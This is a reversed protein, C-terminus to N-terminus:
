VKNEAAVDFRRQSGKADLDWDTLKGIDLDRNERNALDLIHVTATGPLREGHLSESEAQEARSTELGRSYGSDWMPDAADSYPTSKARAVERPQPGSNHSTRPGSASESGSSRRSVWFLICSNAAVALFASDPYSVRHLYPMRRTGDSVCSGLCVYSMEHGNLISLILVNAFSTLLALVAAISSDKALAQAHVFSTKALPIVFGATQIRM